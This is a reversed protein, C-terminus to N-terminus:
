FAARIGTVFRSVWYNTTINATKVKDGPVSSYVMLGGGVYIGCFSADEGPENSFYVIDGAALIEYDIKEGADLQDIIQRPFSIGAEKLCYCAFGSSDFGEEPSMGNEAYPIGLQDSATIVIKRSTEEDLGAFLNDDSESEDSLENSVSFQRDLEVNDFIDPQKQTEVADESPTELNSINEPREPRKLQEAAGCAAMLAVILIGAILSNIISLRYGTM